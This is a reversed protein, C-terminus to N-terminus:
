IARGVSYGDWIADMVKRPEKCDGVMYIEPIRQRLSNCLDREPKLGVALVVTDCAIKREGHGKHVVSIGGDAIEMVDMETLIDVGNLALLRLLMDRNTNLIGTAVEPLKEVVHVLKGQQALWLAVECGILGGGIVIPTNGSKSKRLLLDTATTVMSKEMGPIDPIMPTSGTAIIVIDPKEKGIIEATAAAGLKVVVKGRSLQTRYWYLLAKYDDKFAPVSAEVLHGGLDKSREYLIVKHGRASAIRAAEMGAVGGGVVLAVKPADAPRLEYLRERGVRPNVACSLPKGQGTRYRCGDHCGTCPRIDEAKGRKAKAPWYPDALLPRGLAILDAKGERLFQEALQPTNIRGVGIVPINVVKKVKEAMDIMCGHPQYLPVNIWHRSEWCGADVHLADFGVRESRKAIELGEEIDRGVEKFNEGKYAGLKPTKLYHKLGFRFTVPFDDGGERKIIKYIEIILALRGELDGGYKDTRKNWIPTMFQDLLYGGHGHVEIGDIGAAILVRTAKGFAEVLEEIEHESLPRTTKDPRWFCPVQSASVAKVGADIMEGPMSRGFGATLQVFIKAGYYHVSEALESFSSLALPSVLPVDSIPEIRSEIRWSGTIILGVGGKARETFYDIARQTVGGDYNRFGALTAMPAMATRNQCEINGIKIPEFLKDYFM